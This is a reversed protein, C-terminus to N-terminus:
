NILRIYATKRQDKTLMSQMVFIWLCHISTVSYTLFNHYWGRVALQYAQFGMAHSCNEIQYAQFGM